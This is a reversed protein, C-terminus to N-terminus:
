EGKETNEKSKDIVQRMTELHASMQAFMQEVSELKCIGVMGREKIGIVVVKDGPQLNLNERADAPIVIQGKTGITATGYFTPKHPIGM